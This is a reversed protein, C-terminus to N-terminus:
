LLARDSSIALVQGMDPGQWRAHQTLRLNFDLWKLVVGPHERVRKRM